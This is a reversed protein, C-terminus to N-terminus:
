QLLADRVLMPHCSDGLLVVRGCEHIWTELPRCILLKSELCLQAKSLLKQLSFRPIIMESHEYSSQSPVSWPDWGNFAERMENLDGEATWSYSHGVGTKILVM